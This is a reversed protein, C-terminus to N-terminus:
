RSAGAPPTPAAPAPALVRDVFAGAAGSGVATATATLAAILLTSASATIANMRHLERLQRLGFAGRRLAMLDAVLGLILGFLLWQTLQLLAAQIAHDAKPDPLLAVCLAPASMTVSMSLGKGLGTTGRVMPYAVGMVLGAIAFRFIVLLGAAADVLRFPGGATLTSFVAPLDLVTWPLGIVLGLVAFQRGRHWPSLGGYSSLAARLQALTPRQPRVALRTLETVRPDRDLPTGSDNSPKDAISKRLSAEAIATIRDAAVESVAINIADKSNAQALQGVEPRAATAARRPLLWTELLLWGVLFALPLGGVTVTPTLLGVLAVLLAATRLLALSGLAAKGSSARGLRRLLLILVGLVILRLTQDISSAFQLFYFWQIPSSSETGYVVLPVSLLAAGLYRLGRWRRLAPRMRDWIAPPDANIVHRVLRDITLWVLASAAVPVVVALPRGILGGQWTSPGLLLLVAAVGIGSILTLVVAGNLNLSRGLIRAGVAAAILAAGIDVVLDSTDIWAGSIWVPITSALILVLVSGLICSWELINRVGVTARLATRRWIHAVGVMLVVASLVPSFRLEVLSTLASSLVGFTLLLHLLLLLGITKAARRGFRDTNTWPRLLCTSTTGSYPRIRLWVILLPMASLLAFGASALLQGVEQNAGFLPKLRTVASPKIATTPALDAEAAGHGRFVARTASQDQWTGLRPCRSPSPEPLQPAKVAEGSRVGVVTMNSGVVTFTRSAVRTCHPSDVVTIQTLDRNVVLGTAEVTVYTRDNAVSVTPDGYDIGWRGQPSLGVIEALQDGHGRARGDRVAQLLPDNTPGEISLQFKAQSTPRDSTLTLTGAASLTKPEGITAATWLQGPDVPPGKGVWPPRARWLTQQSIDELPRSLYGCAALMVVLGVLAAVIRGIMRM